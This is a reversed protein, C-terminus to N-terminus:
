EHKLPLWITFTSGKNEESDLTIRGQNNEILWKVIALGLGTGGANRSRAKDVRYFREFIRSQSEKPIGLGNDSVTIVAEHDTRDITVGIWGKNPTYTVANGILNILIQKLQDRDIEMVVAEKEVVNLTIQKLDVKQHLINRVEDAVDKIRVDQIVGRVKHQELRSLQLIDQVMLDLRTSEKHIIKLFEVLVEEDELAGDLLTEAFGKVATIPTRLEHSVNAVFDTRVKELRRIETIDYLLVIHNITEKSQNLIPVVNVDVVKEEPYLLTTEKNQLSREQIARTILDILATSHLGEEYSMGIKGYLDEGVIENMVPNVMSINGYNDVVMVGIVLHNVLEKLQTQNQNIEQMQYDLNMALHNIALGLEDIEKYSHERYRSSYDQIRLRETIQKMKEIPDSIRKTWYNTFLLAVLISIVMFLALTQIFQDTLGGMEEVNKSLRLFGILEGEANVFDTAAYYLVEGTSESTRNFTGISEGELVQQIEPRDLHNELTEEQARTDYIVEGEPSIFTIRETIVEATQDLQLDVLDLDDEFQTADLQSSLTLLQSQLDEGQQEIAQRQLISSILYLFLLTFLVLVLMFFGLIRARLQKM